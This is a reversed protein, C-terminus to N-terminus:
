DKQAGENSPSWRPRKEGSSSTAEGEPTALRKRIRAIFEVVLSFMGKEEAPEDDVVGVWDVFGKLRTGATKTQRM